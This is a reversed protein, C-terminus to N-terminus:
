GRSAGMALPTREIVEASVPSNRSPRGESEFDPVIEELSRRLYSDNANRMASEILQVIQMYVRLDPADYRAKMIKPHSTKLVEDGSFFLEEYLKEGPRVGTFVIEIDEGETLGSLRILDLALDYIRVPEGMDLCFVEGGSGIAGAQLVLRTAEPITM